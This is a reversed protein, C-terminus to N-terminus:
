ALSGAYLAVLLLFLFKTRNFLDAALNDLRTQTREALTELRRRALAQGIRLAALAVLTIGAAIAWAGISNGLFTKDFFDM